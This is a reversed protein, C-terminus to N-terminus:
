RSKPFPRPPEGPLQRTGGPCRLASGSLRVSTSSSPASPATWELSPMAPTRPGAPVCGSHLLDPRLLCGSVWGCIVEYVGVVAPVGLDELSHLLESAHGLRFISCWLLFRCSSWPVQDSILGKDSLVLFLPPDGEGLDQLLPGSVWTKFTLPGLM